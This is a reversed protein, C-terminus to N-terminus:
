HRPQSCPRGGGLRVFLGPAGPARIFDYASLYQPEASRDIDAVQGLVDYIERYRTPTDKSVIFEVVAPRLALVGVLNPTLRGGLMLVTVRRGM